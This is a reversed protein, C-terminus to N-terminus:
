VVNAEVEVDELAWGGKGDFRLILKHHKVVTRQHAITFLTIGLSACTEYIKDTIDDSVASTCEDMIAYKPQHYFLRAMAVRQKQGGSLTLSWNAETDFTWRDLIVGPPDVLGLLQMLDEDSVGKQLMQAKSDPYILQDRLTGMVLYPKQPVFLMEYQDPKTVVGSYPPWLEGLVRFLSSKGCGNPGTLMINTGHPVTFNLPDKVLHRGDPSVLQVDTFKVVPGVVVKGAGAITKKSRPSNGQTTPHRRGEDRLREVHARWKQLFELEELFLTSDSKIMGRHEGSQGGDDHAPAEETVIEFRSTGRENLQKVSEFVESVRATTGSLMKLQTGVILLSGMGRALDMMIQRRKIFDNTNQAVSKQTSSFFVPLCMIFYGAISAGYKEIWTDVVGVAASKTAIHRMHWYVADFRQRIISRERPGGEYFAIEEAHTILRAHATRYNGVLESRKKVLEKFNPMIAVKVAVALGFYGVM